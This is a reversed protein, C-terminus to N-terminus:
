RANSAPHRPSDANKEYLVEGTNADIVYAAYRPQSFLMNVYPIQAAAPQALAASALIVLSLFAVVRRAFTVM